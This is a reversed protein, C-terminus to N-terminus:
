VEGRWKWKNMGKCDKCYCGQDDCKMCDFDAADCAFNDAKYGACVECPDGETIGCKFNAEAKRLREEAEGLMRDYELIKEQLQFNYGSTKELLQRQTELAYELNEIRDAAERLALVLENNKM